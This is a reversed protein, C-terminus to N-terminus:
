PDILPPQTASVILTTTQRQDDWRLGHVQLYRPTTAQDSNRDLSINRGSVKTILDGIEYDVHIGSLVLWVSVAAPLEQEGASQVYERLRDRDDVEDTFDGTYYASDSITSRFPGSTVIERDHYRDSVDLFLTVARGTPSAALDEWTSELRADGVVTGTIRLRGSSGASRLDAPPQHGEFRIGTQDTLQVAGWEPPVEKWTTGSDASWELVVPVRARDDDTRTLCPELTRRHPVYRTFHPSLDPPDEPIQLEVPGSSRRERQDGAENAVFLRWADPHQWYESGLVASDLEDVRLVDEDNPWGRYLPLTVERREFSGHAVVKNALDAVNITMEFQGLTTLAPDRSEGVDQWLVEKEPGTGLRFVAIRRTVSGASDTELRVYWDFGFPHLLADLYFPLFLGRKLRLNEVPPADEFLADDVTVPNAVFEEDPNCTRCIWDVAHDLRWTQATTSHTSQGTTTRVAEPDVFLNAGTVSHFLESRNGRIVGDIEPNLLPDDQVDVEAQTTPNWAAFALLPEGFHINPNLRAQVAVTEDRADLRLRQEVLDGWFLCRDPVGDQDLLRIQIERLWLSPVKLNRLREGTRALHYQLDAYDLDAAGANRVVVDPVLHPAEDAPVPTSGNGDGQLVVLREVPRATSQTRPNLPPAPV